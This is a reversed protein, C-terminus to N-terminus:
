IWIQEWDIDRNLPHPPAQAVIPAANPAFHHTRAKCELGILLSVLLLELVLIVVAAFVGEEVDDTNEFVLSGQHTSRRKSSM